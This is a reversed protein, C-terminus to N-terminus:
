LKIKEADKKSKRRFKDKHKKMYPYAGAGVFSLGGFIFALAAIPIKSKQDNNITQIDNNETNNENVNEVAQEESDSDDVEIRENLVAPKITPIKTPLPTNTPTLFPTSTPVPTSSPKPTPAVTPSPTPPSINAEGPSPDLTNENVHGGDPIRGWTRDVDSNNYNFTDIPSSLEDAKYLKVSEDGNNNLWAQSGNRYIILWHKADLTTSGGASVSNVILENNALDRIVYGDVDVQTDGSNYLEIWEDSKEDGSPNPLVENIYIQASVRSAFVFPALFALFIILKKTV